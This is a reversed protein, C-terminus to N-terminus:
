FSRYPFYSCVLLDKCKENNRQRGEYGDAIADCYNGIPVVSGLYYSQYKKEVESLTENRSVSKLCSM